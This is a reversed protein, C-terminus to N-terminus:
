GIWGRDGHICGPGDGGGKDLHGWSRGADAFIEFGAEREPLRDARVGFPEIAAAPRHDSRSVAQEARDAQRGSTGDEGPRLMGEVPVIGGELAYGEIHVELGIAAAMEIVVAHAPHDDVVICSRCVEKPNLKIM